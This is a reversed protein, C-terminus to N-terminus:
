FKILKMHFPSECSHLKLLSLSSSRKPPKFSCLTFKRRSLYGCWSQTCFKVCHDLICFPVFLIFHQPSRLEAVRHYTESSPAPSSRFCWNAAFIIFRFVVQFHNRGRIETQDLSKELELLGSKNNLLTLERCSILLEAASKLEARYKSTLIAGSKRSYDRGFSNRVSVPSLFDVWDESERWEISCGNSYRAIISRSRYEDRSSSMSHFCAERVLHDRFKM